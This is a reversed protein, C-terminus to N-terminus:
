LFSIKISYPIPMAILIEELLASIEFAERSLLEFDLTDSNPSQELPARIKKQIRESLPLNQLADKESM